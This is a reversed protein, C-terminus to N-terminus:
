NHANPPFHGGIRGGVRVFLAGAWRPPSRTHTSKQAGPALLAANSVQTQMVLAPSLRYGDALPSTLNATGEAERVEEGPHPPCRPQQNM